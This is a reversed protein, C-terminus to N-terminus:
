ELYVHLNSFFNLPQKERLFSKVARLPLVRRWETGQVQVSQLASQLSKLWNPLFSRLPRSNPIFHLHCFHPLSFVTRATVLWLGSSEPGDGPTGEDGELCMVNHETPPLLWVSSIDLSPLQAALLVFSESEYVSLMFGGLRAGQQQGNFLLGDINPIASCKWCLESSAFHDQTSTNTERNLKILLIRHQSPRCPNEWSYEKRHKARVHGSGDPVKPTKGVPQYM